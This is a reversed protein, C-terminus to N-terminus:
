SEPPFEYHARGRVPPNPVGIMKWSVADRNGGHRPGGYFGQMTHDVLMAFFENQALNKWLDAPAKNKEVLKLLDLRVAPSLAVFGKGHLKTATAEIAALGARYVPQLKRYHRTLQRDIYTVVGAWAAGPDQDAPIIQECIANVARAEEATFFRWPGKAGGCSVISGSAAVAAAGLFKRRRLTHSRSMPQGGYFQMLVVGSVM